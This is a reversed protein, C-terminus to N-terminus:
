SMRGQVVALCAECAPLGREWVLEVPHAGCVAIDPRDLPVIHAAAHPRYATLRRPQRRLPPLVHVPSM